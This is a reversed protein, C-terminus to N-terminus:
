ASARNSRESDFTIHCKPNLKSFYVAVNGPRTSVSQRGCRRGETGQDSISPEWVARLKDGVNRHTNWAQKESVKSSSCTAPGKFFHSSKICTTFRFGDFILEAGRRCLPYLSHSLYVFHMQEEADGLKLFSDFNPAKNSWYHILATWINSRLKHKLIFKWGQQMELSGRRCTLGSHCEAHKQKSFQLTPTIFAPQTRTRKMERLSKQAELAKRKFM